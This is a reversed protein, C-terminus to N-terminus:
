PFNGLFVIETELQINFKEQVKKQVIKIIEHIDGATAHSLNVIFNAHEPAIEAGGIRYGSLGCAKIFSWAKEGPPNKFISGASKRNKPQSKLRNERYETIKSEIEKLSGKKVELTCQYIWLKKNQKFVSNRYAFQSDIRNFNRLNGDETVSVETTFDSIEHGYCGANQVVAGGISGPITTLFELGAYEMSGIKKAIYSSRANAPVSFILRDDTQSIIEIKEPYDLKLLAGDYGADSVLLNSGGGLIFHEMKLDTLIKQLGIQQEVNHILIFLSAEGGVCFTNYKKLSLNLHYEIYHTKCYDIIQNKKQSNM